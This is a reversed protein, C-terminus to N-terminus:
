VTLSVALAAHTDLLGKTHQNSVRAVTPCVRRSAKRVQDASPSYDIVPQRAPEAVPRAQKHTNFAGSRPYVVLRLCVFQCVEVEFWMCDLLM